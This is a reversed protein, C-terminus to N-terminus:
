NAARLLASLPGKDTGIVTGEGVHNTEFWGRSVELVFRINPTASLILTEDMPKMDHTELITGEDNIYACSLPLLTNRMYFSAQQPVPLMFLMAENPAMNTRFMMGTMIEAPRRAVETVLESFGLYLKVTPLKAQASTPSWSAPKSTQQTNLTRVLWFAFLILLAAAITLQNKRSKTERNV